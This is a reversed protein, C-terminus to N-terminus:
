KKQYFDKMTKKTKNAVAKGKIDGIQLTRKKTVLKPRDFQRLTNTFLKVTQTNIMNYFQILDWTKKRLADVYYDYDITLSHKTIFAPDEIKDVSLVHRANTLFRRPSSEKGVAGSFFHTMQPQKQHYQVDTDVVEQPVYHVFEVRDGPKYHEYGLRENHRRALISHGPETVYESAEKISASMIFKEIPIQMLFDLDLTKKLLEFVASPSRKFFFLNLSTDVFESVFLSTERRVTCLGKIDIQPTDNLFEKKLGAYNKKAVLIFPWYIKEFELLCPPKFLKATIETSLAMSNEFGETATLHEPLAVMVSDTNHVIMTGLGAQFHGNETSLDYVYDSRPYNFTEIDLVYDDDDAGFTPVPSLCYSVRYTNRTRAVKEVREFSAHIRVIFEQVQKPEYLQVTISNTAM